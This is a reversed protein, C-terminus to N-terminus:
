TSSAGVTRRLGEDLSLPPNWGLVQRTKEIDVQLNGTLRQMVNRRGLLAAAATLLSTPIPLLRSQLGQAQATRRLLDSTSIDCGDSAMFIQNAAAPHKLCLITLDALNDVGVLSRQNDIAGFPLPIGCKVWRMMAAFNAKVGPGYVLPPRIVVVRMGSDGACALLAQEAEWKSVAYADQPAPIDDASFPRGPESTEGNVKATSMFVFRRVGTAVAADALRCTADVNAAYYERGITAEDSGDNMVHVRAALHIVSDCGSVLPIWSDSSLMDRVFWEVEAGGDNKPMSRTVARVGWGEAVLRRVLVQGVFGAAGTVLVKKRESLLSM